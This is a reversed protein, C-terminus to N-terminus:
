QNALTQQLQSTFDSRVMPLHPPFVESDKWDEEPYRCTVVPSFVKEGPHTDPSTHVSRSSSGIHAKQVGHDLKSLSRIVAMNKGHALGKVDYM